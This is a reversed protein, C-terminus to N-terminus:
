SHVSVGPAVVYSTTPRAKATGETRAKVPFLNTQPPHHSRQSDFESKWWVKKCRFWVADTDSCAGNSVLQELYEKQAIGVLRVKAVKAGFLGGLHVLEHPVLVLILRGRVGLTTWPSRSCGLHFYHRRFDRAIPVNASSVRTAHVHVKGTRNVARVPSNM